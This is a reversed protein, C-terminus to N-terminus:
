TRNCVPSYEKVLRRVRSGQDQPWCVEFVFGVPAYRMIGRDPEDFYGLLTSQIDETSGIFIWQSSNSLGYVGPASPAYVRVSAASFRHPTIAQFPMQFPRPGPGARM